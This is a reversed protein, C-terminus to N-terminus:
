NPLIIVATGASVMGYLEIVDKNYMRICGHSAPKGILGEEPTGHIYIYRSYSDVGKGLNVEPELGKLWLIRSTVYDNETDTSDTTITAIKNSYIRDKIIGGLPVNNGFKQNIKHLGIPTCNSGEKCSIGLKASSIAYSKKIKNRVIYYLKQEEINVYIFKRFKIHPNEFKYELYLDIIKAKTTLNKQSFAPFSFILSLLIFLIVKM